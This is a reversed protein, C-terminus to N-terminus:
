PRAQAGQGGYAADIVALRAATPTLRGRKSAGCQPTSAFLTDAAAREEPEGPRTALLAEVLRPAYQIQCRSIAAVPYGDVTDPVGVRSAQTGASQLGASNLRTEALAARLLLPHVLRSEVACGRNSQALRSLAARDSAGGIPEILVKDAAHENFRSVCQAFRLTMGYNYSLRREQEEVYWAGFAGTRRAMYAEYNEPSPHATGRKEAAGSGWPQASAPVAVLAATVALSSLLIRM